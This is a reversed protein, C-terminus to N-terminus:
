RKNALIDFMSSVSKSIAEAWQKRKETDEEKAMGEISVEEWDKMIQFVDDRIYFSRLKKRAEWDAKCILFVNGWASYDPHGNEKTKEFLNKFHAVVQRQITQNLYPTVEIDVEKNKILRLFGSAFLKYAEEQAEKFAKETRWVQLVGLEVKGIDAIQKLNMGVPPAYGTMLLSVRKKKKSLGILEGKPTGKRQPEIYKRMEHEVFAEVVKKAYEQM